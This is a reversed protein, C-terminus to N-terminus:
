INHANLFRKSFKRLIGKLNRLLPLAALIATFIGLAVNVPEPVAAIGLSWGNLTANGGGAITDSFYLTWAGNPNVGSFGSFDVASNYTPYTNDGLFSGSTVSQISGNAAGSSVLSIQMGDGMAGFGDVGVGPQNMLTVAAGNPAVLYGYLGNNQGGTLYLTVTLSSMSAGVGASTLDMTNATVAAPNGDLITSNQISGVSTGGAQGTSGQIFLSARSTALMGLLLSAILYLKKMIM